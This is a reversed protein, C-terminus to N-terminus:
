AGGEPPALMQQAQAADKVAGALPGAQELLQQQQQQQAQAQAIQDAEERSRLMRAPLSPSAEHLAEIVADPDLRQLYRPNTQALPGLNGLFQVIAMGERAKMAMSAASQYRMGLPLGQAEKPPPPIQGARWLMRFRREVKRAAYEEMIRDSHPAWNRMKAEEIILTELPTLGTRGQVTMLAYHFAEKVEEIKARKEADTLGIGGSVQLPRVLQEGRMGIGGYVMAGPRIYGNLPWAERDPALMTPDSAYLAGRLTASEMQQVVRASALAIFGPGTGITHGSDVDWRPVYYPMDEYGRESILWCGEDCVYVSKWKKGRTGIRGPRWDVNDFVHHYFAIKTQDGKEALEALKPPLTGRDRFFAMAARPKLHFKRVVESVRGWADIDWVIEALSLAIDMFKREREDLEDYAAANGFAALDSYNQFTSNYFSSVSPKFSNLVRATAVDNWEAMPQWANLDADPTELGFWRNAPNTLGAYLGAAFASGALIPQSSLPKPHDRGTPDTLSFGGRQPRILRAIDEWDREHASRVQKLEGWRDIATQAAPHNRGDGQIDTMANM